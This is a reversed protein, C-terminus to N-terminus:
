HGTAKRSRAAGIGKSYGRRYPGGTHKHNLSGPRHLGKGRDFARAVQHDYLQIRTHLHERIKKYKM